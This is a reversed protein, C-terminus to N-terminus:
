ITFDPLEDNLNDVAPKKTKARLPAVAKVVADSFRDATARDDFYLTRAYKVKGEEDRVVERNADLIPRAPLAAWTKGNKEHIAVDDMTLRWHPMKIKAFGRLTGREVARFELCEIM